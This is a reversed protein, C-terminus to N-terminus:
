ARKKWRGVVLVTSKNLRSTLFTLASDGMGPLACVSKEFIYTRVKSPDQVSGKLREFSSCVNWPFPSDGSRIM